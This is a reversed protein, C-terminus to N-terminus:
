ESRLAVVPDASAAHRAAAFAATLSVLTFFIAVAAYTAPDLPTLDFLMADFSRTLAIAGAVGLLLGTGILV